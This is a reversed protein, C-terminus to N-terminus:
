SHRQTNINESYKRLYKRSCTTLDSLSRRASRIFTTKLRWVEHSWKKTRLNHWAMNPFWKVLPSPVNYVDCCRIPLLIAEIDLLFWALGCQKTANMALNPTRAHYLIANLMCSEGSVIGIQGSPALPSGNAARYGGFMVGPPISKWKVSSCAFLYFAMSCPQPSTSQTKRCRKDLESM